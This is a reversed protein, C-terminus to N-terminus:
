LEPVLHAKDIDRWTLELQTQEDLRLIIRDEWAEQLVGRFQRRGETAVRLRVNIVQGLYRRCQSATFFTRDIGPSSVELTYSGTVPNEVDLVSSIQRSIKACIDIDVGHESDVYIRLVRHNKGLSAWECGWLEYGFATVAPEIIKQLEGIMM